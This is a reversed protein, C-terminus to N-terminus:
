RDAPRSTSRSRLARVLFRPNGLVYRRWKRGPQQLLIQVWEMGLRRVWLPARVLNGGWHDFLGGVGIAVIGRLSERHRDIWTEQIPNGMGVLLLHAGSANVRDVVGVSAGADVYGHHAGVVEVGFVAEVHRAARDITEATAGLLFVRCGGPRMREFLAPLLDTGVLNDRLRVGRLRAAIKAGTGDAFVIDARRLVARYGPDEWALNLTHANVIAVARARMGGDRVWGELLECAERTTTNRVPVGLLDVVLGAVPEGPPLSERPADIPMATSTGDGPIPM